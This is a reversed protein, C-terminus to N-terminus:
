SPIGCSLRNAVAVFDWHSLTPILKPEPVGMSHWVDYADACAGFRDIREALRAHEAYLTALDIRTAQKILARTAARFSQATDQAFERATGLLRRHRGGLARQISAPDQSDIGAVAARSALTEPSAVGIRGRDSVVLASCCGAVLSGGGYCGAPGGILGVVPVGAARAGVLTRLLEGVAPESQGRGRPRANMDFLILVPMSARDRAARLLGILQAVAADGWAEGDAAGEQAAVLVPAGDL